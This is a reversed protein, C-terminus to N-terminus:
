QLKVHWSKYEVPPSPRVHPAKRTLTSVLEEEPSQLVDMKCGLPVQMSQVSLLRRSAVLVPAKPKAAEEKSPKPAKPAFM